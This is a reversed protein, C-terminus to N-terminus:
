SKELGGPCGEGESKVMEKKKLSHNPMKTHVKCFM